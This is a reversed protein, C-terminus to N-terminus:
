VMQVEALVRKGIRPKLSQKTVLDVKGGLENTLFEELDLIEFISRTEAFEVLIDIDSGATAEGRLASGFLGITAVRYGGRLEPLLTRLKEIIEDKTAIGPM